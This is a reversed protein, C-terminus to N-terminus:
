KQGKYESGVAQAADEIVYLNHKKAIRNIEDMDCPQGFIHVVM